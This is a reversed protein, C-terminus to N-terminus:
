YAGKASIVAFPTKVILIIDRILSRTKMYRIDMRVMEDFTTRSRGKVQWLGTIGPKIEFVRRKHWVDYEEVEYSLAPRPGVLSMSGTLVNLFQPLEDLSTKRLFRGIGTIRPDDKMKFIGGNSKNGGSSNGRIFTKMFEKHSKNDNNQYMSRFKLLTFEKGMFGVRKQKFFVPGDSTYKIIMAITIIFPSFLLLLMFSGVIDLARKSICSIRKAMRRMTLDQYLVLTCDMDNSSQIQRNEPYTFCSISICAIDEPILTQHITNSIKKMIAGIHAENVDPYIIGIIRNKAYWGKIDVERTCEFLTKILRKVTVPMSKKTFIKNIDILMLLFKEKSREIRKKELTLMLQFYGEQYLTHDSSAPVYYEAQNESLLKSNKWFPILNFNFKKNQM